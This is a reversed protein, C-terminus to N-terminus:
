LLKAGITEFDYGLDKCDANYVNYLSILTSTIYPRCRLPVAPAHVHDAGLGAAAEGPAPDTLYSIQKPAGVCATIM